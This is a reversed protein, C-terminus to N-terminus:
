IISWEMMSRIDSTYTAIDMQRKELEQLKATIDQINKAQENLSPNYDVVNATIRDLLTDVWMMLYYEHTECVQQRINDVIEATKDNYKSVLKSINLRDSSVIKIKGIWIGKEFDDRIFTNDAIHELNLDEYSLILEMLESKKDDSISNSGSVIAILENRIDIAKSKWYVRSEAEISGQAEVIHDTFDDKIRELLEDSALTDVTHKTERLSDSHKSVAGYDNKFDSSLEKLADVSKDKFLKGINDMLNKNMSLKAKLVDIQRDDYGKEAEQKKIFDREIEEMKDRSYVEKAKVIYKEMYTPYAAIYSGKMEGARSEITEILAKKDQEFAETVAKKQEARMQKTKEIENTTFGIVKDLFLQAQKCKNYHSYKDAFSIIEDEVSYLGSNAYLLDENAEAKEMARKKLQGPMINNKYLTKYFRSSPDSYKREEDEFIEAYHDDIFEGSIKSGLGVISSVFYIGETYLNKPVAMGLIQDIEEESFGTKPIRAADAKNVIIMTFRSDLENVERIVKYLRENDTSDLSDYESVFIPLGNSLNRMQEKLVELHKDNSASNSGPTDFIVFERNAQKWLGGVFPVQISILNSIADPVDNKDFSNIIELARNVREYISTGVLEDLKNKVQMYLPKDGGTYIIENSDETFLIKFKDEEYELEVEARNAISSNKIQYIKATIPEDGSPLVESGILSNIFTSKGASYNGLICIPVTDKSADTFKKLQEGIQNKIEEDSDVVSDNIMSSLHDTFIQTIEPLIDRANALRKDTRKIEVKECYDDEVCVSALEAFEDDTGEFEIMIKGQDDRYENIIENVITKVHFPFFGKVLDESLLKSYQNNEYNIASWDEVSDSWKYYEIEQNYPNSVIKIRSM